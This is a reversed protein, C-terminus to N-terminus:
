KSVGEEACESQYFHKMGLFRCDPYTGISCGLCNTSMCHEVMCSDCIDTGNYHSSAYALGIANVDTLWAGCSKCSLKQAPIATSDKEVKQIQFGCRAVLSEHNDLYNQAERETRFKRVHGTLLSKTLWIKGCRMKIFFGSKSNLVYFADAHELDDKVTVPVKRVSRDNAFTVGVESKGSLEELKTLLEKTTRVTHRRYSDGYDIVQVQNGYRTYEEVTRAFRMGGVIWRGFEGVEFPTYRSKRTGGRNDTNAVEYIEALDKIEEKTFLFQNRHRYNLVTWHKEPIERGTISFDFCNSSGHNCLPIFEDGVRIFARDYFIESSM